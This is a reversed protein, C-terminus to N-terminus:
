IKAALQDVGAQARAVTVEDGLTRWWRQAASHHGEVRGQPQRATASVDSVSVTTNRSRLSHRGASTRQPRCGPPADPLEVWDWQTEEGPPHAIIEVDRGRSLQCLLCHPRLPHARIAATLSPYCRAFGLEGLEDFLTSAWSHPDGALRM